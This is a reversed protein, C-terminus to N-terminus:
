TGLRRSYVRAPAHRGLPQPGSLLHHVGARHVAADLDVRDDRVRGVRQM